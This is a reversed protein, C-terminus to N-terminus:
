LPPSPVSLTRQPYEAAAVGVPAVACHLLQLVDKCSSWRVHGTAM